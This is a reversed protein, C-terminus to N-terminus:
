ALMVFYPKTSCHGYVNCWQAGRISRSGKCSRRYSLRFMLMKKESGEGSWDWPHRGFSAGVFGAHSYAASRRRKM